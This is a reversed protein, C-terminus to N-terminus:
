DLASFFFFFFFVDAFDHGYNEVSPGGAAGGVAGVLPPFDCLTDDWPM